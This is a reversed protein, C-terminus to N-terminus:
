DANKGMEKIQEWWDRGTIAHNGDPNLYGRQGDNERYWTVYVGQRTKATERAVKAAERKSSGLMVADANLGAIVTYEM